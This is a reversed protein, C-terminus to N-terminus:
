TDVYTSCCTLGGQIRAIITLILVRRISSDRTFAGFREVALEFLKRVDEENTVDGEVIICSDPDPCAQKTELLQAGRRAFLVLSWGARALTIATERGIGILM